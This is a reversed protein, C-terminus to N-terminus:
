SSPIDTPTSDDEEILYDVLAEAAPCIIEHLVVAVVDGIAKAESSIETAVDVIDAVVDCGKRIDDGTM